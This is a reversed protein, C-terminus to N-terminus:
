SKGIKSKTRLDIAQDTVLHQNNDLEVGTDSEGLIMFEDDIQRFDERFDVWMDLGFMRNIQECAKRRSELRSYRSAIIGGMNRTVEDSIMREKKTINTNSIGLYTLAENWYQSKLQYIKDAVYPADTKLVKLANSDLAKTGFIFPENGDYQKYLNKMTLRQGDDCEILVPTKQANANVDIIRDYNYLRKAFMEVDLKSPTHIMNNYIIVSNSEDLDSNYYANYGKASRHIPIGYENFPGSAICMLGMYKDLEEDKFFVAKGQAFLCLELFRLDVEEPVNQWDFMAITLELLRNYYQVFTANNMVASEWFMLDNPNRKPM